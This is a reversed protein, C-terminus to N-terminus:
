GVKKSTKKTNERRKVQRIEVKNNLNSNQLINKKDPLNQKVEPNLTPTDKTLAEMKEYFDDSLRPKEKERNNSSTNNKNQHTQTPQQMAGLIKSSSFAKGVQPKKTSTPENSIDPQLMLKNIQKDIKEIKLDLNLLSKELESNKQKTKLWAQSNFQKLKLMNESDNLEQRETLKKELEVDLRQQMLNIKESELELRKLNIEKEEETMIALKEDIIKKAKIPNDKILINNENLYDLIFFPKKQTDNERFLDVEKQDIAQYVPEPFDELTQNLKINFLLHPFSLFLFFQLIILM